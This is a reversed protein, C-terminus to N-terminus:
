APYLEGLWRGKHEEEQEVDQEEEHEELEQEDQKDQEDEQQKNFYVAKWFLRFDDWRTLM